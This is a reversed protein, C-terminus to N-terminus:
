ADRRKAEALALYRTGISRAREVARGRYQASDSFFAAADMGTRGRLESDLKSWLVGDRSFSEKLSIKEKECLLTAKRVAEHADSDGDLALLVYAAEALVMDGGADLNRRMAERDVYLSEVIANM